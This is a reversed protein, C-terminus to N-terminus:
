YRRSWLLAREEALAKVYAEADQKRWLAQQAESPEVWPRSPPKKPAKFAGCVAALVFVAVFLGLGGLVLGVALKMGFLVVEM